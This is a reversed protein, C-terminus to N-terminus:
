VSKFSTGSYQFGAAAASRSAPATLPPVGASTHAVSRLRRLSVSRATTTAAAYWSARSLARYSCPGPAVGGARKKKKPVSKHYQNKRAKWIFYFPGPYPERGAEHPAQSRRRLPPRESKRRSKATESRTSLLKQPKRTWTNELYQNLEATTMEDM